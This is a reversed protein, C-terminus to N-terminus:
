HRIESVFRRLREISRERQERTRAPRGAQERAAGVHDHLHFGIDDLRLEQDVDLLNRLQARDRSRGAAKPDASRNGAHLKQAV